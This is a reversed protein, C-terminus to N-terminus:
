IYGLVPMAEGSPFLFRPYQKCRLGELHDKEADQPINMVSLLSDAYRIWNPTM